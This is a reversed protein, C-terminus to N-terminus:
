LAQRCLESPVASLVRIGRRNERVVERQQEPAAALERAAAGRALALAAVAASRRMVMEKAKITRVLIRTDDVNQFFLQIGVKGQHSKM